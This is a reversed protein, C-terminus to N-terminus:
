VTGFPAPLFSAAIAPLLYDRILILVILLVMPSFDLGGFDPLIRRIPRVLPEILRDLATLFSRVLDNSTNIINFAVLWSMVGWVIVLWILITLLFQLAGILYLM